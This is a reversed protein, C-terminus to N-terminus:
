DYKVPRLRALSDALAPYANVLRDAARIADLVSTHDRNFARGIAPLSPQPVLRRCCWMALQRARVVEKARSPGTLDAAQLSFQEAVREILAGLSLKLARERRDDAAPLSLKGCPQM